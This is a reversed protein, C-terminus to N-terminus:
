QWYLSLLTNSVVWSVRPPDAASPFALITVLAEAGILAGDESGRQDDLQIASAFLKVALLEGAADADRAGLPRNEAASISRRIPSISAERWRMPRSSTEEAHNAIHDDGAQFLQVLDAYIRYAM